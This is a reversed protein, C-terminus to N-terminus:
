NILPDQRSFGKISKKKEEKISEVTWPEIYLTAGTLYNKVFKKAEDRTRFMKRIDWTGNERTGSTVLYVIM